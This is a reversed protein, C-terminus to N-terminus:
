LNPHIWPEACLMLGIEEYDSIIRRHASFSALLHGPSPDETQAAWPSVPQSGSEWDSQPFWLHHLSDDHFLPILHFPAFALSSVGSSENQTVPPIQIVKIQTKGTQEGIILTPSPIDPRHCRCPWDCHSRLPGPTRASSNPDQVLM